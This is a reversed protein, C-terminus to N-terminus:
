IVDKTMSWSTEVLHRLCHEWCNVGDSHVVERNLRRSNGTLPHERRAAFCIRFLAIADTRDEHLCQLHHLEGYFLLSQIEGSTPRRRLPGHFTLHYRVIARVLKQCRDGTSSCTITMRIISNEFGNCLMLAIIDVVLNVDIIGSMEEIKM